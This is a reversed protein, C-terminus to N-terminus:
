ANVCMNCAHSQHSPPHFHLALADMICANASPTTRRACSHFLHFLHFIFIHSGYGTNTLRPISIAPPPSPCRPRPAPRDGDDQTDCSYVQGDETRALWLVYGSDMAVVRKGALAATVQRPHWMADTAPLEGPPHHALLHPNLRLPPRHQM